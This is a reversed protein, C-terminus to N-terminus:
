MLLYRLIPTDSGSELTTANMIKTTGAITNSAGM